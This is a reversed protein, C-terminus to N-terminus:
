GTARSLRSRPMEQSPVDDRAQINVAESIDCGSWTVVNQVCEALSACGGILTETGEIVVRSGIKAQPFPIQAHGPYTGDPLGALEISATILICKGQRSQYSISSVVAVLSGNNPTKVEIEVYACNKIPASRKKQPSLLLEDESDGSKARKGLSSANRTSRRRVPQQQKVNVQDEETKVDATSGTAKQDEDNDSTPPTDSVTSTKASFIPSVNTTPTGTTSPTENRQTTSRRSRTAPSM